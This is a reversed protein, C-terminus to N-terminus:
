KEGKKILDFKRKVRVDSKGLIIDMNSNLKDKNVCKTDFSFIEDRLKRYHELRVHVTELGGHVARTLLVCGYSGMDAYFNLHEKKFIKGKGWYWGSSDCALSIDRSLLSASDSQFMGSKKSMGILETYIASRNFLEEVTKNKFYEPNIKQAYKFYKMQEDRWTLQIIGRGKYRRGDGEKIHGHAVAESHRGKDLYSGDGYELTTRFRDSEHYCQTLFQIKRICTNIEYTKMVKNLEQALRSFTKHSDPLPCNPQWFLTEDQAKEMKRMTLIIHKIDKESFEKDCWCKDNENIITEPKGTQASRGQKIEM